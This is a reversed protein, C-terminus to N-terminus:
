RSGQEYNGRRLERTEPSDPFSRRLQSSLSNEAARDGAAREIRVALWLSEATPEGQAHLKAIFSRADEHRGLRFNLNALQLLAPGTNRGLRLAKQLYDEAATMDSAVMSCIGANVYSLEPTPYLRNKIATLFHAISDRERGTQCLFWGYNNSIEPDNPALQLAQRFNEDAVANERLYMHVLGSLNYAPAYRRDAEIAIRAEELAVAMNGAQFYATGLETHARARQTTSKSISAQSAPGIADGASAGGHACGGVAAAIALVALVTVCSRTADSRNM